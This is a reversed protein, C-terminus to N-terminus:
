PKDRIRNETKFLLWLLLILPVLSLIFFLPGGRHHLPGSLIEPNQLGMLSLVSIRVANRLIGIPGVALVLITQRWPSRLFMNAALFGAIVLVLSSRIGSCQEAVEITLGPLYFLLGERYIPTGSGEIILYAMDASGLQLFRTFAHEVGLPMPCLFFLFLCPFLLERLRAVGYIGVLGALFLTVWGAVAMALRDVPATLPGEAPAFLFWGMGVCGLLALLGALRPSGAEVSSLDDRRLIALYASIAPILFLHSYLSTSAALQILQWIPVAFVLCLCVTWVTFWRQRRRNSPLDSEAKYTSQIEPQM